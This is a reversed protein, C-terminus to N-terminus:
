ALQAANLKAHSSTLRAPLPPPKPALKQDIQRLENAVGQLRGAIIQVFHDALAPDAEMQTHIATRTLKFAHVPGDATYTASHFHGDILMSLEGLLTGTPTEISQATQGASQRDAGSHEASDNDAGSPKAGNHKAGHPQSENPDRENPYLRRVQGSVILFAADGEEGATLIQDGGRFAIREANQAIKTIQEPKLGQFLAVKLFPAFLPSISM